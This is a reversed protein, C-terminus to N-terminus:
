RHSGPGPTLQLVFYDIKKVSGLSPPLNTPLLPPTRLSPVQLLWPLGGVGVGHSVGGGRGGWWGEARGGLVTRPQLGGRVQCGRGEASCTGRLAM